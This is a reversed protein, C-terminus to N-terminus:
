EAEKEAEAMKRAQNEVETSPKRFTFKFGGKEIEVKEVAKRKEGRLREIHKEAGIIARKQKTIGYASDM